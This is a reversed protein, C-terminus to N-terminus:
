EVADEFKFSSSMVELQDALAQSEPHVSVGQELIALASSPDGNKIHLRSLELYSNPFQSRKEAANEQLAITKEYETIARGTMNLFDPYQSYSFGMSHQARWNDPDIALVEKWMDQAKAAWISKEPGIASLIKTVYAQALHLRSPTDNADAEVDAQLKKIVQDFKDGSRVSDWFALQEEESADGRFVRRMQAEFEEASLDTAPQRASASRSEVPEADVIVSPPSPPAVVASPHPPAAGDAASKAGPTQGKERLLMVIIGISIGLCILLFSNVHNKMFEPHGTPLSLLFKVPPLRM